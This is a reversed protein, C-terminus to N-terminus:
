RLASRTNLPGMVLPKPFLDPGNQLLLIFYCNEAVVSVAAQMTNFREVLAITEPSAARQTELDLEM